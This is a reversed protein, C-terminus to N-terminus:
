PNLLTPPFRNTASPAKTASSLFGSSGRIIGIEKLNVWCYNCGSERVMRHALFETLFKVNQSNTKENADDNAGRMLVSRDIEL